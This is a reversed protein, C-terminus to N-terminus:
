KSNTAPVVEKRLQDYGAFRSSSPYGRRLQDAQILQLRRLFHDYNRRAQPTWGVEALAMARPFAQYYVREPQPM